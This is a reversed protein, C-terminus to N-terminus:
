GKIAAGILEALQIINTPHNISDTSWIHNICANALVQEADTAFLPHTIMCSVIDAGALKLQKATNALTRGTSAVDDVIVVNRNNFDFDPLNIQVRHDGHRIKTALTWELKAHEAIQRVWQESEDDPGLLLPPAPRKRLFEAMLPTASLTITETNPMIEHLDHTRHLHPDVTIIKDVMDGLWRSIIQQSVVEGPSFAKDQRMYCLYPAVLTIKKVGHQRAHTCTLFLEILKNNPYDLSRCLIIEEELQAPLTVKSERDPFHHVTIKDFSAGIVKALRRAQDSYDNFGLLQM